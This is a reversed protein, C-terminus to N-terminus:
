RSLGGINRLRQPGLEFCNEIVIAVTPNYDILRATEDAIDDYPIACVYVPREVDLKRTLAHVATTKGDCIDGTILAIRFEGKLDSIIEDTLARNIHYEQLGNDIDRALLSDNVKGFILFDEIDRTGPAESAAVVRRYRAFSSLSPEAPPDRQQLVRIVQALGERGIYLPTGFRRQMMDIDIDPETAPKNIFFIKERLGSVNHLVENLHFDNANFGVFVVIQARDLDQRFIDLWPKLFSVNRYSEYGLICSTEFNDLDWSEARGHLHVVGVSSNPIEVIQVNNLPTFRRNSKFGKEIADDYNTTYIREWPFSLIDVMDSGVKSIVYRDKLADMMKGVGFKEKALEAANRLDKFGSQFGGQNLKENLFRLLDGAVGIAGQESFNLCDASFGAGCFLLGHDNRARDLREEFDMRGEALLIRDLAERM